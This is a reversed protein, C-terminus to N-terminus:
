TLPSAPVVPWTVVVRLGGLESSDAMADGGTARAAERVLALGLGSGGPVSGTGRRFRDFITEREEISVGPGDDEVMLSAVAHTVELRVRVRHQAYDFSNGLLEDLVTAFVGPSCGVMVEDSIQADLQLDREEAIVTAAEIRNEAVTSVNTRGVVGSGADSRALALVQEIRHTLRDVEATAAVAQRRVDDQSTTEEIAELRLRVGTLPTRLHHSADAAVRETRKLIGALREATQNLAMAVSRVEAPGESQSARLSLDEPLASAVASLRQLPAVISRAILWALLGACAIVALVFVGLWLYTRHVQADVETEPLSLRVAAVVSFQQVVPAAVYRLDTGLTSSQRVDSDLKGAIAQDLEPRDFTRDLASMDSDAILVRDVDVLVVRAGTAAAAAEVTGTWLFQPQSSLVSATALTDIELQSIFASRVNTAAISGLPIALAIAVLGALVTMVLVLRRTM